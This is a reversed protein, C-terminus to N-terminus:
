MIESKKIKYNTIFLFCKFISFFLKERKVYVNLYFLPKPDIM